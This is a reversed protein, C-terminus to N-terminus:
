AVPEFKYGIIEKGDDKWLTDIVLKLDMGVKLQYKDAEKIQSMIRVGEPFEVWAITFPPKYKHVPMQVATFTYLKAGDRLKIEEMNEGFCETCASRKPFFVAGCSTCKGALLAGGNEETFLGEAFPEQPLKVKSDKKATIKM